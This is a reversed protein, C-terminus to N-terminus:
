KVLPLTVTFTSGKGVDSIVSLTGGHLQTLREAIALGLGIGQQEMKMRNIQEFKAFIHDIKDQPIGIGEDRVAISLQNNFTVATIWVQGGHHSFKIANHILRRFIDQIYNSIGSVSLRPPLSMNLLLNKKATVASFQEIVENIERYLNLETSYSIIEQTVVDNEIHVVLMLDEILRQLRNVGQQMGDILVSSAVKGQTLMSLYGQIYSLPTRLEHNFIQLLQQKTKEVEQQSIAKIDSSRQLRTRVTILLDEAAFPKVLYHDAGLNYGKRLDDRERLASLFVFPISVWEPNERVSEYFQYGDMFPMQVDSLILDPPHECMVQLADSADNTTMLDYGAMELVFRVSDLITEDDDVALIKAQKV